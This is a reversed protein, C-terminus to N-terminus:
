NQQDDNFLKGVERVVTPVYSTAIEGGVQKFAKGTQPSFPDFGGQYLGLDM